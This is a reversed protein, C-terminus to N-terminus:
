TRRGALTESVRGANVGVMRGIEAQSLNPNRLHLERIQAAILPTMKRSKPQAKAVPPRRPIEDALDALESIGHDQALVRLRAAVEKLIM